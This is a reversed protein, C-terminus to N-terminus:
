VVPPARVPHSPDPACAPSVVHPAPVASTASFSAVSVGTGTATPLAATDVLRCADCGAMGVGSSGDDGGCLDDLSGGAAVYALLDATAPPGQTRHAVASGTLAVLLAAVVMLRSLIFLRALNM